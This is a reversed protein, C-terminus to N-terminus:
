LADFVKSYLYASFIVNTMMISAIIPQFFRKYAIGGYLCASVVVGSVFLMIGILLCILKRFTVKVRHLFPHVVALYQELTIILMCMFSSCPFITCCILLATWGM